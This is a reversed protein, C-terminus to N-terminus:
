HIKKYKYRSVLIEKGNKEARTYQYEYQSEIYEPTYNVNPSDVKLEMKDKGLISVQAGNCFSVVVLKCDFSIKPPKARYNM